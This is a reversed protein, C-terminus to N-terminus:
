WSFNFKAVNTESSYVKLGVFIKVVNAFLSYSRYCTASLVVRKGEKQYITFLFVVTICIAPGLVKGM